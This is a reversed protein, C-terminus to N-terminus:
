STGSAVTYLNGSILQIYMVILSGEIPKKEDHEM